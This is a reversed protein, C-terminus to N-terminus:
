REEEFTAEPLAKLEPAETLTQRERETVVAGTLTLRGGWVQAHREDHSEAECIGLLRVPTAGPIQRRRQERHATLFEQKRALWERTAVDTCEACFQPWGGWIAEVARATAADECTLSGYAGVTSAAAHLGQWATLAVDEQKGDVLARLEGATPFFSPHEVPARKIAAIVHAEPLDRLIEYYARFTMERLRMAPYSEALVVLAECFWQPVAPM